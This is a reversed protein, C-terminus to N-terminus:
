HLLHTMELLIMSMKAPFHPASSLLRVLYYTDVCICVYMYIYTYMYNYRSIWAYKSTVVREPSAPVCVGSRVKCVGGVLNSLWSNGRGFGMAKIKDELRRQPSLCLIM